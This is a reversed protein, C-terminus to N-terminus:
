FRIICHYNLICIFYKIYRSTGRRSSDKNEKEMFYLEEITKGPFGEFSAIENILYKFADNICDKYKLSLTLSDSYCSLSIFIYM